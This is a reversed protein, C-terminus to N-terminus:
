TLIKMLIGERGGGWWRGEEEKGAGPLKYGGEKGVSVDIERGGDIRLRKRGGGTDRQTYRVGGGILKRM